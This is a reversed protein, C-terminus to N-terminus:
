RVTLTLSIVLYGAENELYIQYPAQIVREEPKGILSRSALDLTLGKPLPTPTLVEIKTAVGEDCLIRNATITQGVTYSPQTM